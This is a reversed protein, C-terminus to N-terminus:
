VLKKLLLYIDAVTTERPNSLTCADEFAALSISDLDEEKVGYQSYKKPINFDDIFKEIEKITTRCIAEKTQGTTNVNFAEAIFKYKSASSSYMNYKLIAPLSIALAVGHPIEYKAAVAHALSHCLGLGSNSYALGAIYEAYAMNQRAEINEPNDYSEPLNKIILKIAEKSLTDSFMNAKSSILSEVAHTFADLGSSLTVIDPMTTMLLPDIFTEVPLVKDNFCIIKKRSFESTIVFSKSVEAASGATTPVAFVPLPHNLGDKHGALSVVDEYKPNTAIVSIAKATDIASGGGIALIFDAKARKLVRYANQVETVTPENSIDSFMVSPIKSMVFINAIKQYIGAEILGNDTIILGKTLHRNTIEKSIESIANSGFFCAHNFIIKDM